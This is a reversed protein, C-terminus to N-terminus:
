TSDCIAAEELGAVIRQIEQELLDFAACIEPAPVGASDTFGDSMSHVIALVNVLNVRQSDVADLLTQLPAGDFLGGRGDARRFISIKLREVENPANGSSTINPYSSRHPPVASEIAM